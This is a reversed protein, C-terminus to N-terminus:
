LPRYTFWAVFARGDSTKDILLGEGGRDPGGYWSGNIWQLDGANAFGQAVCRETLENPILRVLPYEGTGFQASDSGTSDWSFEATTCSTFAIRLSGWRRIQVDEPDFDDGFAAGVTSIVNDVILTRGDLRGTGTIWYQSGIQALDAQNNGLVTVYTLGSGGAASALALPGKLAGTDPDYKLVANRTTVLLSGDPHWAMGTPQNLGAILRNERVGTTANYRFVEGSRESSVLLTQGDPDFLIGRAANLGGDPPAIFPTTQGTAPDHRVVSNSDYGPVYLKGDPGFAMGNDAGDLGAGRPPVADGLLAGTLPNFRRVGDYEYGAVYAEGGAFALGTAGYGAPLEIAVRRFELSQPDYALVRGNGESVVYLLGDPGIGTAQPGQIRGASDLNRLFAGSCADYVHVNNSLYGSVLLRQGCSPEQATANGLSLILTLSLYLRM